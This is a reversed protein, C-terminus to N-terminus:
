HDGRERSKGNARRGLYLGLGFLGGTAALALTSPEPVATATFQVQSLSYFGLFGQDTVIGITGNLINLPGLPTKLDYGLFSTNLLDLNPTDFFEGVLVGSYYFQAVSPVATKAVYSSGAATTLSTAGLKITTSENNVGYSFTLDQVQSSDAVSTITFAQNTFATAGLTGSGVGTTTYTILGARAEQSVMSSVLAMAMPVIWVLRRM